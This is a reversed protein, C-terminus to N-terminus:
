SIGPSTLVFDVVTGEFHKLADFFVLDAIGLRVVLFITRSTNKIAM